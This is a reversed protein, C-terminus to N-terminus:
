EGKVRESSRLWNFQLLQPQLYISGVGFLFVVYGIAQVLYLRQVYGFLAAFVVGPFQEQPMTKSFNWVMPGLICDKDAPKAFREQFFCMGQSERNMQAISNIAQDFKGLSTVVLGAIILLLLVGMVMFFKRINLRMGWRFLLMGILSAAVIGAIAGVAPVIGQQFKSAIFLVTEFGERIIAFFVLWFIGWGAQTDTKLAGSVASEVEQKLSKAHRSMWILMWSLLGIALVGFVAEMLPEIAGAYQQNAEGLSKIVWEFAVGAIISLAIGASIGFYIWNKLHTQGAKKLYAFVIGIVLAAEVGERLTIIFTPLASSFDMTDTLPTSLKHLNPQAEFVLM